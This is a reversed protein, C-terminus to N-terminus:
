TGKMATYASYLGRLTMADADVTQTPVGQAQLAAAYLSALTGDGILAINQGLWYPRAAALEMGILMGSLRARATAPDLGDLLTEARLSFLAGAMSEPRSMTDAVATKFAEADLDQADVSHRLVSQKALLAFMEGTMFTRFSVIEGASIHVWKSHTGPLCLVGDWEPQTAIFGAVQTEEGRMVDAPQLQSMGSLIRVDMRPDTGTVRKAGTADPPAAPVSRYPAESWGQRAGVMGCCIVPTVVDQRLHPEILSLLAREFEAPALTGMGDDSSLAIVQADDHIWVRLRSTGWDVAIWSM